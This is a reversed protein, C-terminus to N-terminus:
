KLMGMLEEIDFNKSVNLYDKILEYIKECDQMSLEVSYAHNQPDPHIHARGVHYNDILINDPMIIISWEKPTKVKYLIKDGISAKNQKKRIM